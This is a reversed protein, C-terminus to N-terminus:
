LRLGTTAAPMAHCPIVHRADRRTCILGSEAVTLPSPLYKPLGRLLIRWRSSEGYEQEYTVDPHTTATCYLIRVYISSHTAGPHNIGDTKLLHTAIPEIYRSCIKPGECWLVQGKRVPGRWSGRPREGWPSRQLDCTLWTPPYALYTPLSTPCISIYVHSLSLLVLFLLM